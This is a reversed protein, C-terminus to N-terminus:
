HGIVEQSFAIRFYGFKGYTKKYKLTWVPTNPFSDSSSLITSEFEIALGNSKIEECFTNLDCAQVASRPAVIHMDIRPYKIGRIKYPPPPPHHTNNSWSSDISYSSRGRFITDYTDLADSMWHSDMVFNVMGLVDRMM